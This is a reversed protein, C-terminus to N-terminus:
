TWSSYWKWLSVDLFELHRQCLGLYVVLKTNASCCAGLIMCQFFSQFLLCKHGGFFGWCFHLHSSCTFFSRHNLILSFALRPHPLSCPCPPGLLFASYLHRIPLDTMSRTMVHLFQKWVRLCCFFMGVALWRERKPKGVLFKRELLEGNLFPNHIVLIPLWSSLLFPFIYNIYCVHLSVVLRSHDPLPTM